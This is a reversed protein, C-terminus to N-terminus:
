DFRVVNISLTQKGSLSEPQYRVPFPARAVELLPVNLNTKDWVIKTTILLM